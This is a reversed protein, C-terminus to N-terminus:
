EKEGTDKMQEEEAVQSEETQPGRGPFQIGKLNIGRVITGTRVTVKGLQSDPTLEGYRDVIESDVPPGGGYGNRLKLYYNGGKHVRLIYKGDSATKDSAFLPKGIITPTMFAVVLAGEVPRNDEDMIYGEIATMGKNIAPKKYPAAEALVGIDLRRNKKVSYKKPMGRRDLSIFFFDGEKPPGIQRPAERMVAGLCYKGEPLEASFRGADDTSTNFDPVRWYRDYSPLPGKDARYLYVMGNRMAGGGKLMLQGSITGVQVDGAYGTCVTVLVFCAALVGHAATRVSSNRKGQNGMRSEQEEMM